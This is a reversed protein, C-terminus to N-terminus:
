EWQNDWNTDRRITKRPTRPKPPSSAGVALENALSELWRLRVDQVKEFSSAAYAPYGRIALWVRISHCGDLRAQLLQQLKPEVDYEDQESLVHPIAASESIPRGNLYEAHTRALNTRVRNLIRVAASREEPTLAPERPLRIM